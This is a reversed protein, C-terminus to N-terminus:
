RGAAVSARWSPARSGADAGCVACDDVRPWEYSPEVRGSAFDVLWLRGAAVPPAFRTLLRLAEM